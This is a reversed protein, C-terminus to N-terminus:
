WRICWAPPGDWDEGDGSAWVVEVPKGAVAEIEALARDFSRHASVVRRVQFGDTVEYRHAGPEHSESWGKSMYKSLYGALRRAQDRRGAVAKVSGNLDSYQVHGHGWLRVMDGHRVFSVPVAVHVHLGHGGPHWELVYAAPFPAGLYDRLRQLWGNVHGIVTRRQDQAEAYTLTWMRTLQNAVVYRRLEGAARSSARQANKRDRVEQPLKMWASEGPAVGGGSSVDPVFAVVSEGADPYISVRFLGGGASRGKIDKPCPFSAPPGGSRDVPRLVTGFSSYADVFCALRSRPGPPYGVEDGGGAVTPDPQWKSVCGPEFSGRGGCQARDVRVLPHVTGTEPSPLSPPPTPAESGVLARSVVASAGSLWSACRWPALGRSGSVVPRSCRVLGPQRGPASRPSSRRGLVDGTARVRQGSVHV